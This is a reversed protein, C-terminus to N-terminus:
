CLSPANIWKEGDWVFHSLGERLISPKTFQSIIKDDGIIRPDKSPFEPICNYSESQFSLLAGITFFTANKALSVYM